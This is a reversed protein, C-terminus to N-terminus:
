CLFFSNPFVTLELLCVNLISFNLEISKAENSLVDMEAEAPQSLEKRNKLKDLASVSGIGAFDIFVVTQITESDPINPSKIEMIFMSHGRSSQINKDGIQHQFLDQNM